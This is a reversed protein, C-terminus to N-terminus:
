NEKSQDSYGDDQQPLNEIRRSQHWISSLNRQQIFLNSM